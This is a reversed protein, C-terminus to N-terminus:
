FEWLKKQTKVEKLIQSNSLLKNVDYNFKKKVLHTIYKLMLEKSSFELSKNSMANRAAERTVWVGLPAWYENTILRICIVKAQRKLQKLQELIALRVSYYGGATEQAYTKRGTYGEVDHMYRPSQVHTEFLEYSWVDPFTMVIYYNGLHSGFFVNYGLHNNYDKIENILNKGLTDDVATISWRTPVLRRDKKIGLNGVSLLRTLYHEDFNKKYLLNLADQSKFDIDDVVKQIKTPIKSNETIRVKQLEVNAGHPSVDQNLSLSFEPRKQLNIEVDTPRSAMSLEQSIEMFKNQFNKISTKFRSNILETRLGIIKGIQYNEKSWVPVDDHNKYEETGLIGVNINPYGFRGIFVNPAKGFFDQKSNLNVKKQSNVKARIPCVKRGCYLRGKCEYCQVNM